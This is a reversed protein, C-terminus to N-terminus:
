VPKSTGGASHDKTEQVKIYILLTFIICITLYCLLTVPMGMYKNMAPFSASVAFDALWLALIAISMARGRIIGPFIETLYLWTVTGLTCSFAAVYLLLFLFSGFVYGNRFCVALIALLGGMLSIGCLMVNKRNMKDAVFIIVVAAALTIVGIFITQRFAVAADAGLEKFILPAYYLVVNIGTVQQCVAVLIGIFLLQSYPPSFLDKFPIPEMKFFVKGDHKTSVVIGKVADYPMEPLRYVLLGFLVPFALQSALMWSWNNPGTGYLSSCSFYALLIGTIIASQYSAILTGKLSPPALESLYLPSLLAIAGVGLGGIIRSWTFAYLQQSVIAALGTVVFFVACAILIKSRGFKDALVGAILSGVACGILMCGVAWGLAWGELNFYASIYPIAGAIIGTNYGFLLGGVIAVCYVTLKFRQGIKPPISPVEQKSITSSM